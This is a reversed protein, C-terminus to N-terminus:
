KKRGRTYNLPLVAAEWAACSPEIGKVRELRREVAVRLVFAPAGASAKRSPPGGMLSRSAPRHHNRKNAAILIKDVDASHRISEHDAGAAAVACRPWNVAYSSTRGRPEQRKNQMRVRFFLRRMRSIGLTRSLALM